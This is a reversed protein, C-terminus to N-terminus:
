MMTMTLISPVNSRKQMEVIMAAMLLRRIMPTTPVHKMTMAYEITLRRVGGGEVKGHIGHLTESQCMPNADM